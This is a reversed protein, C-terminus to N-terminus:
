NKSKEPYDNSKKVRELSKNLLDLDIELDKPDHEERFKVYKLIKSVSEFKNSMLKIVEESNKARNLLNNYGDSLHHIKGKLDIIEKDKQNDLDILKDYKKFILRLLFSSMKIFIPADKYYRKDHFLRYPENCYYIQVADNKM